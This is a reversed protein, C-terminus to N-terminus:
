NWGPLSLLASKEQAHALQNRLSVTTTFTKRLHTDETAFVGPTAGQLNTSESRGFVSIRVRTVYSDPNDGALPITPEAEFVDATGQAYWVQLNEINAAVPTWPEGLALDRRELSPNPAPPLPNIRYQVVHFVGIVACDSSVANDFGKPPNLDTKTNGPAHNIKLTPCPDKPDESKKGGGGGSGASTCLPPPKTVEFPVIGPLAKDCNPDGNPGQIAFLVMGLEYADEPERSAPKFTKPDINLVSSTGITNCPGQGAKGCPMPMSTPIDPDAYIITVEDPTDGGGNAWIVTLTAPTNYGAVVLDRSIWDLGARANAQMDAVEPERRFSDQGKALLRFVSAMVITTITLAVLVEILSFGNDGGDRTKLVGKM